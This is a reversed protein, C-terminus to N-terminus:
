HFSSLLPISQEIKRISPNLLRSERPNPMGDVPFDEFEDDEELAAAPKQQAKLPSADTPGSVTAKTTPGSGEASASMTALFHESKPLLFPVRIIPNWINYLKRDSQQTFIASTLSAHGLASDQRVVISSVPLVGSLTTYAMVVELQLTGEGKNEKRTSIRESKSM